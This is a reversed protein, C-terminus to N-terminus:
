GRDESTRLRDWLLVALVTKGDCITGDLAWAVADRWAITEPTLQEDHELQMPGPTLDEAVFLHTVESLVGPSPYFAALKRWRAARYGTEEALERVAAKEQAEGKELTGAPIELLTQGVIPRVNRLLCVHEADVLPVIAVSGA